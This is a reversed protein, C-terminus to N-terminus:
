RGPAPVNGFLDEALERGREMGENTLYVGKNKNVHDGIFGREHLRNMVDFDHGKWTHGESDSFAALLALVADDIRQDDYNM